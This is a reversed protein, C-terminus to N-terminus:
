LVISPSTRLSLLTLAGLCTAWVVLSVSLVLVLKRPASALPVCTLVAGVVVRVTSVVTWVCLVPVLKPVVFLTWASVRVVGQRLSMRCLWLVLVMAGCWKWTLVSARSLLTLVVSLGCWYVVLSGDGFALVHAVVYSLYAGAGTLGVGFVIDGCLALPGGGGM